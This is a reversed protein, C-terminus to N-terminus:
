GAPAIVREGRSLARRRFRLGVLLVALGVLAVAAVRRLMDGNEDDCAAIGPQEHPEVIPYLVGGCSYFNDSAQGPVDVYANTPLVLM